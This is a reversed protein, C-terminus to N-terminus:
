RDYRLRRGDFAPRTGELIEVIKDNIATNEISGSLYEFKNKSGNKDIHVYIIQEADAGIALNPNHTVIIVQRERKAQRIFQSLREYVSKNDLNDEPQDIVLPIMEKDLVLYFILLLSGKEGPSLEDLTKNDLKLQYDTKLYDLSFLFHFFERLDKIQDTIELYNERGSDDDRNRLSDIIEQILGRVSEFTSYETKKLISNAKKDGDESYYNGKRGRNIHGLYNTKFKDDIRISAEISINVDSLNKRSIEDDIPKKFSRYLNLQEVKFNYVKEVENYIEELKRDRKEEVEKELYEVLWKYYKVGTKSEISGELDKKKVEWNKHSELYEHYKKGPEALRDKLEKVKTELQNKQSFLTPPEKEDLGGDAEGLSLKQKNIDYDIEKVKDQILKKGNSNFEIIKSFDSNIYNEMSPWSGGDPSNESIYEKRLGEYNRELAGIKSIFQELEEKRQRLDNIKQQTKVISNENQELDTLVKTLEEQIKKSAPNDEIGVSVVEPPEQKILKDLSEEAEKLSKRFNDKTEKKCQNELKVLEDIKSNITGQVYDIESDIVNEKYRILDDFSDRNLREAVPIYEFIVDNLAEKLSNTDYSTIKEFYNQPIYRVRPTLTTDRDDNLCCQFESDNSFMLSAIFKAALGDKKFKTKHLFSLNEEKAKEANGLLAIIDAIASKGSGKNGIISILGTKNIPIEVNQFWLNKETTNEEIESIKLSKIFREPNKQLEVLSPPKYGIYVRDQPEYIIQKLGEFTPDAKIWTFCKGIRDKILKEEGDKANSFSHADSCDLLPNQFGQESLSAKAKDFTGVSESSTFVIDVGNIISKKTAISADSWKLSDWETKGVATLFKGKFCDKDLSEFIKEEQLNLNNFGETLDSGYKHLEKEPINEKIGKGLEEVSEPTISRTWKEGNSIFYSQELTNLFQSQITEIDLENSFIVHFNIRKLSGFDIGAFKEIRFEVIPLILDINKLRGSNKYDVVKMYGNLFLYDNIGIVKFEEPLNELDSIYKEWNENTDGGYHQNISCPTHVHLDWKRWVSGQPYNSIKSM